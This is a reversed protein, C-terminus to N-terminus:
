KAAAEVDEMLRLTNGGLVNEVGPETYGKKLLADTIQPLCSADDMGFPMDAGDFDSGLGVHDIGAVSVAHDIHEIISTWEVRPLAGETVLERVVEGAAVLREPSDEACRERSRAEIEPRLQPRAAEADRFEQSLFGVHFNIQVIGGKSALARIMDDSLNRPSDCLSRCSSHTAIPPAEAVELVDYFTKDSAHSVDVMMGLRNMERIVEKGFDTLGNHGPKDTSSDAWGTNVMHTLTMYRVGLKAYNRLVDLDNNIMHGGEIAMLLAIKGASHASRIDNASRALLVKDPYLDAQRRVAAIQQLAREVAVPGTVTGPVWIALFVADVGGQRMRPIDLHGDPHEVNFAFRDDLLRQTTDCHTDVVISRTHLALAQTSIHSRCTRASLPSIGGLTSIIVAVFPAELIIKVRGFCAVSSGPPGSPSLPSLQLPLRGRM